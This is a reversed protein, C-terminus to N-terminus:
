QCARWTKVKINEDTHQDDGGRDEVLHQSTPLFILSIVVLWGDDLATGSSSSRPTQLRYPGIM